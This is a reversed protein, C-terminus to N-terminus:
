LRPQELFSTIRATLATLSKTECEWIVLVSWGAATLSSINENDREVNKRLKAKWFRRNSSPCSGRPCDHQHWFCGHVFIVKRRGPFVLDPTGPLDRRHLRFRYGLSHVLRRIRMEPKTDKGRIRSMIRSRNARSIRDTM